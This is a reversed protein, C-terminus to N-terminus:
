GRRVLRLGAPKAVLELAFAQMGPDDVRHTAFPIAAEAAGQEVAATKDASQDLLPMLDLAPSKVHRPGAAGGGREGKRQGVAADRGQRDMVPGPGPGFLQDGFDARGKRSDVNPDAGRVRAAVVNGDVRGREPKLWIVTM